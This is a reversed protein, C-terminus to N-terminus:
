SANDFVRAFWLQILAAVYEVDGAQRVLLHDSGELTVVTKSGGTLEFLKEAHWYPLTRDDPPHIIMHAVRIERIASELDHSRLNDLLQKKLTWTRGGIEVTGEGSEAIDPNTADLFDALHHTSSPSAITVLANVSEFEGVSRMMAGGGLSHGIFLQPASYERTLYEAAARLDDINSDFNSDSFSGGSDGLGTFDFRLIAIGRRALGRSIRVIAKLDKNCTFCHSFIGYAVPQDVPFDIIGVLRTGAANKFSIRKSPM